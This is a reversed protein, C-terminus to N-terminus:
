IAAAVQRSTVPFAFSVTTGQGTKSEITVKGGILGAREQMGIMGFHELMMTSSFVNETDFGIGNDRVEARFENGQAKLVITVETASAHKRINSLSEQVIWYVTTEEVLTLTPLPEAAIVSCNIAEQQLAAATQRIVSILGMDQLPAPRLNFIARRLETVSRQMTNRIKNLETELEELRSENVLMSCAKIGFSAGVMWQAVGDHIEIAVRKRENEQAMLVEHLLNNVQQHQKEVQRFLRINELTIGAWWALVSAASIEKESYTSDEAMKLHNVAGIIEGKSKVPLTLLAGGGAARVHQHLTYYETNAADVMLPLANIMAERCVRECAPTSAGRVAKLEYNGTIEDKIILNVYDSGTVSRSMETVVDFIRSSELENAMLHNAQEITALVRNRVGEVIMESRNIAMQVTAKLKAPTYPEILFSIIGTGACEIAKGVCERSCVVVAATGAPFHALHLNLLEPADARAIILDCTQNSLAQSTENVDRALTVNYGERLLPKANFPEKATTIDLVIINKTIM